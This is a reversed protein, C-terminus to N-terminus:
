MSSVESFNCKPKPLITDKENTLSKENADHKNAIISYQARIIAAM